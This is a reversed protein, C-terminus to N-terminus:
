APRTEAWQMTIGGVKDIQDMITSMRNITGQKTDAQTENLMGLLMQDQSPVAFTFGNDAFDMNDHYEQFETPGGLSIKGVYCKSHHNCITKMMRHNLLDVHPAIDDVGDAGTGLEIIIQRKLQKIQNIAEM